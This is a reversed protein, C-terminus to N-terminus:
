NFSYMANPSDSLNTSWIVTFYRLLFWEFNFDGKTNLDRTETGFHMKEIYIPRMLLSWKRCTCNITKNSKVILLFMYM